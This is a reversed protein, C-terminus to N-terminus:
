RKYDNNNKAKRQRRQLISYTYFAKKESSTFFTREIVRVYEIGNVNWLGFLNLNNCTHIGVLLLLVLFAIISQFSDGINLRVTYYVMTIACKNEMAEPYM